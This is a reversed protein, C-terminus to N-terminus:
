LLQLNYYYITYGDPIRALSLSPVLHLHSNSDPCFSLSCASLFAVLFSCTDTTFSSRFSFFFSCFSSCLFERRHRALSVIFSLRHFIFSFYIAFQLMKHSAFLVTRKHNIGTFKNPFFDYVVRNYLKPSIHYQHM